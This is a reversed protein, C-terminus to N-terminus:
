LLCKVLRELELFMISSLALLGYYGAAVWADVDTGCFKM